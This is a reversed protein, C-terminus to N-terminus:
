CKFTNTGKFGVWSNNTENRLEPPFRKWFKGQLWICALAWTVTCPLTDAARCAAINITSQLHGSRGSQLAGLTGGGPVPCLADHHMAGVMGPAAAPFSDRHQLPHPSQLVAARPDASSMSM